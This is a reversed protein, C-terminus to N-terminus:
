KKGPKDKKKDDKRDEHPKPKCKKEDRGRQQGQCAHNKDGPDPAPQQAPAGGEM